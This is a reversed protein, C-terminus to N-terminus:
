KPGFGDRLLRHWWAVAAVVFFLWTLMAGVGFVARGVWPNAPGSGFFPLSIAFAREGPGFAVWTGVTALVGVVALGLLYYAVRM